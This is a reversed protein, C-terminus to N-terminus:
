QRLFRTEQCGAQSWASISVGDIRKIANVVAVSQTLYAAVGAIVAVIDDEDQEEVKAPVAKKTVVHKASLSNSALTILKIVIILLVLELFVIGMGIAAVTLGFGFL